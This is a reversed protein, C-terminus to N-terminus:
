QVQQIIPASHRLAITKLMKCVDEARPQDTITYIILKGGNTGIVFLNITGAIGLVPVSLFRLSRIFWAPSDVVGSLHIVQHAM